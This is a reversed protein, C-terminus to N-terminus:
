TVMLVVQVSMGLLCLVAIFYALGRWPQLGGIFCLTHVIRAITFTWFYAAAATASAGALVFLLGIAFFFPLNEADNRQISLARVVGPNEAEVTGQSRFLKADEANVFQGVRLRTVATYVGSLFGKFVLIAVCISFTSFAPNQLLFDM